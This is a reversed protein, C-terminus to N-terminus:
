LEDPVFIIAKFFTKALSFRTTIRITPINIYSLNARSAINKYLKIYM